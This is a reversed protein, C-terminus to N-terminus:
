GVEEAKEAIESMIGLAEMDVERTAEAELMEIIPDLARPCYDGVLMAVCRNYGKTLVQSCCGSRCNGDHMCIEDDCLDKSGAEKCPGTSEPAM